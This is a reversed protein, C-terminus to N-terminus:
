TTKGRRQQVYIRAGVDSAYNLPGALPQQLPDLLHLLEGTIMAGVVMNPSVISPNPNDVCHNNGEPFTALHLQEDVTKTKGPNYVAVTGAIPNTGGDIYPINHKTSFDNLWIRAHKNDVAGIIVDYHQLLLEQPTVHRIGAAKDQESLKDCVKGVYAKSQVRPNIHKVRESLVAAKAENVHGRLQAQRNLNKAEAHDYDVFDIRKPNIHPLYATVWNGIAGAGVVLVKADQHYPFVTKKLDNHTGTRISSLSNYTLTKNSPLPYDKEKLTFFHKRVEELAVGAIIGSTFGGERRMSYAEHLLKELGPKKSFSQEKPWFSTISARTNDSSLSIVPIHKYKFSTSYALVNEKSSPSNTAEIVLRPTNKHLFAEHFRGYRAALNVSPDITDLAEKILKSKKEGRTNMFREYLFGNDDNRLHEGDDFFMVNGIGLGYIGALLSQAMPGSGVVVIKGEYLQQQREAGLTGGGFAEANCKHIENIESM